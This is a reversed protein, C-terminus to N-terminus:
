CRDAVDFNWCFLTQEGARVDLSREFTQGDGTELRVAHNGAPLEREVWTRGAAAGDITVTSWPVSNVRLTGPLGVPKSPAPKSAAPKAAPKAAPEPTEVAPVADAETSAPAAEAADPSAGAPPVPAAPAAVEARSPPRAFPATRERAEQAPEWLIAMGIAAVLAAVGVMAVLAPWRRPAPPPPLPEPQPADPPLDLTVSPERDLGAVLPNATPIPASVGEAPTLTPHAPPTSPGGDPDRSWTRPQPGTEGETFPQSPPITRTRARPLGGLVELVAACDPLRDTRRKEVCGEIAAMLNAPVRRTIGSLDTPTPSSVESVIHLANNGQFLRQGTVMEYLICGLAFIDARQDVNSADHIQEPAMYSPTGMGVGTGTKVSDRGEAFIKAIGFDAVRPRWRQEDGAMLVNGPKLDRHVLGRNHAARVADVIDRFAQEVVPFDIPHLEKMWEGLTPGSVFPMLLAPAGAVELVDTVPVIGPHNLTAQIRGERILRERLDRRALSLVKLAHQSGLTRHQVRYVIAHGGEGLVGVVDYREIREGAELLAAGARTSAQSLCRPAGM